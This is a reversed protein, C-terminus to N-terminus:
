VRLGLEVRFGLQTAESSLGGGWGVSVWALGVQLVRKTRLFAPLPQGELSVDNVIAYALGEAIATKGVGTTNTQHKPNRNNPPTPKNHTHTCAPSSLLCKTERSSTTTCLCVWVRSSVVLCVRAPSV